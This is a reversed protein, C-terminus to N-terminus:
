LSCLAETLHDIDETIAEQADLYEQSKHHYPIVLLEEEKIRIMEQIYEKARELRDFPKSSM